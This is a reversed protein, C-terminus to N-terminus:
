CDHVNNREIGYAYSRKLTGELIILRVQFEFIRKIRPLEITLSPKGVTLQPDRRVATDPTRVRLREVPTAVIVGVPTHGICDAPESLPHIALASLRNDTDDEPDASSGAAADDHIQCSM